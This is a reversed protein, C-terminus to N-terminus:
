RATGYAHVVAAMDAGGHGAAAAAGIRDRVAETLTPDTGAERLAASILDVDKALGDLGFSPAFDGDIMAKGKLQLYPADVAQGSVADLFQQPDLGLGRALAISQAVGNVMVGIWANVTLKLKTADGATEGVWMTKAGIAEFVERVAGHLASPGSALVVLRGNEAPAKTGLVPVDLFRVGAREALAALRETGAIGVTSTQVWVAGDRFSGLVPEITRVVSDTDFLSTIVVDAAAVADAASAAVTAGHEALPQAKGAHRNWATVGIGERLLTRAMGTGMIGTGIM